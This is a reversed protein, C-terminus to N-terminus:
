LRMVYWFLWYVCPDLDSNSFASAVATKFENFRDIESEGLRLEVGGMRSSSPYWLLVRNPGLRLAHLGVETIEEDLPVGYIFRAFLMVQRPDETRYPVFAKANNLGNQMTTIGSEVASTIYEGFEHSHGWEARCLPAVARVFPDFLPGRREDLWLLHVDCCTRGDFHERFDVALVWELTYLLTQFQQIKGADIGVAMALLRKLLPAM